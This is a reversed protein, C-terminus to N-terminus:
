PRYEQFESVMRNGLCPVAALLQDAEASNLNVKTGNASAPAPTDANSTPSTSSNSDTNSSAAPTTAGCAVLAISCFLVVLLYIRKGKM